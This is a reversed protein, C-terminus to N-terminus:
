STYIRVWPTGSGTGVAHIYACCINYCCYSIVLVLLTFSALLCAVPFSSEGEKGVEIRATPLLEEM